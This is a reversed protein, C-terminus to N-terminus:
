TKLPRDIGQDRSWKVADFETLHDMEVHDKM